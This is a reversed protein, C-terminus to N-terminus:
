VFNGLLQLLHRTVSTQCIMVFHSAAAPACAAHRL